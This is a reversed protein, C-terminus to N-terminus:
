SLTYKNKDAASKEYFVNSVLFQKFLIPVYLSFFFEAIEKFFDFHGGTDAMILM